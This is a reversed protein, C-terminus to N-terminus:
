LDMPLATTNAGQKTRRPENTGLLAGSYWGLAVLLVVRACPPPAFGLEAYIVATAGDINMPIPRGKQESLLTEIQQAIQAFKGDCAGFGVVQDVLEM